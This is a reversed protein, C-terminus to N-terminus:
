MFGALKIFIGWPRVQSSERMVITVSSVVFLPGMKRSLGRKITKEILGHDQSSLAKKRAIALLTDNIFASDNDSDIGLIHFPLQQSIVEIAEVVLAQSKALLPIAEIWESCIDVVVLSHIYAGATSGGNHEVFDIELYGPPPDNWDSFTRIRIIQSAKKPMSRLWTLPKAKKRIPQLLRDLTAASALLLRRRVELDLHLHGHRELSEVLTPLIAKLRKGCIRDGAEWTIILAERVAEDYIRRGHGQKPEHNLPHSGLLRVAHKRHFGTLETFEDLIRTKGEKSSVQYRKRLIEILEKKASKGIRNHM